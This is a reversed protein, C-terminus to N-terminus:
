NEKGGDFYEPGRINDHPPTAREGGQCAVPQQDLSKDLISLFSRYRGGIALTLEAAKEVRHVPYRKAHRLTGLCSRFGMEPHPFHAMIQEILQVTFPGFTAAWERINGANHETHAKHAPSRHSPDTVPKWHTRSRLHSAVRQGDHFIEVTAPTTRVEVQESVLHYPVSYFCDGAQVHYDPHVRAKSWESMEYPSEPLPRMAPQDLELFSTWRCGTRKKFPRHNLRALLRAIAENTEEISMLTLGRLAALIWREAVLVGAEAKAKDRPKYARAPVIGVGYHQAMDAYTPNLEPDYRCPKIVATKTNDPVLLEPVGQFFAFARVHAGIWDPLQETLTAEAYTYNSAGLVAVFLSARRTQGSREHITIKDGAWDVFLKEGPKHSQRMVVIQCQRWDEYLACFRSYSYGGPEAERYERWLLDLTTHPRELETRIRHFDPLPRGPEAPKSPYLRQELESPKLPPDPPWKLGSAAFRGLTDHVTSQGLELARAIERQGLQKDFHLRLIEDIKRM